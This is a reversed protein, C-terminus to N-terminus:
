CFVGNKRHRDACINEKISLKVQVVSKRSVEASVRSIKVSTRHKYQESNSVIVSQGVVETPEPSALAHFFIMCMARNSSSYLYVVDNSRSKIKILFITCFPKMIETNM